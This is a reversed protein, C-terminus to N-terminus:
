LFRLASLEDRLADLGDLWLVNADVRERYARSARGGAIQTVGPDLLRSLRTLEGPLLPDDAPYALSLCVARARTLSASIRARAGRQVPPIPGTSSVPAVQGARSFSCARRDWARVSLWQRLPASALPFATSARVIDRASPWRVM